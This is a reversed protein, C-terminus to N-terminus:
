RKEGFGLLLYFNYGFATNKESLGYGALYSPPLKEFKKPNIFTKARINWGLFINKIVEVKFGGVLEFWQATFNASPIVGSANGWVTDKIFYNAEGRKVYSAGYRLGIFANDMDGKFERSFFTKYL